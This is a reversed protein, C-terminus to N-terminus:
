FAGDRVDIEAEPDYVRVSRAGLDALGLEFASDGLVLVRAGAILPETYVSLATLIYAPPASPTQPVPSMSFEANQQSEVVSPAWRSRPLTGRGGTGVLLM